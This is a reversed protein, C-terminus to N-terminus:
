NLIWLSDCMNQSPAKELQVDRTDVAIGALLQQPSEWHHKKQIGIGSWVKLALL